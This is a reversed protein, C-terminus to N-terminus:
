GDRRGARGGVQVIQQFTKEYGLMKAKQQRLQLIKLIHAFNDYEKESARTVFGRYVHERLDRRSSNELFGMVSPGDLTVSWKPLSIDPHRNKYTAQAMELFSETLGVCDKEDELILEFAKTSDLVNNAFQTEQQSLDQSIQTFEERKSANLGVGSLEADLLLGEILRQEAGSM